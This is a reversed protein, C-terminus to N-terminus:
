NNGKPTKLTPQVIKPNSNKFGCSFDQPFAVNGAVVNPSEYTFGRARTQTTSKLNYFNWCGHRQHMKTSTKKTKSLVINITTM